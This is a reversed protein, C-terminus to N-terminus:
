EMEKAEAIMKEYGEGYVRLFDKISSKRTGFKFFHKTFYKLSFVRTTGQYDMFVVDKQNNFLVLFGIGYNTDFVIDNKYFTKQKIWKKTYTIIQESNFNDLVYQFVEEKDNHYGQLCFISAIDDVDKSHLFKITDLFENNLQNM